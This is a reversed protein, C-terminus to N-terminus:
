MEMAQLTASLQNLSQFVETKEKIGFIKIVEDPIVNYKEKIGELIEKAELFWEELEFEKAPDQKSVDKRNLVITENETGDRLEKFRSRIQKILKEISNDSLKVIDSNNLDLLYLANQQLDIFEKRLAAFGETAEQVTRGLLSAVYIIKDLAITAKGRHKGEREKVYTRILDVKTTFENDTFKAIFENITKISFRKQSPFQAELGKIFTDFLEKYKEFAITLFAKGTATNNPNAQMKSITQFLTLTQADTLKLGYVKTMTEIDSLLYGGIQAVLEGKLKAKNEGDKEQKLLAKPTRLIKSIDEPNLYKRAYPYGKMYSLFEMFGISEWSNPLQKEGPAFIEDFFNKGFPSIEMTNTSPNVAFMLLALEQALEHHLNEEAELEHLNEHILTGAIKKQFAIPGLKQLNDVLIFSIKEKFSLGLSNKKGKWNRAFVFPINTQKMIDYFLKLYPTSALEQLGVVEYTWGSVIPPMKEFPINIAHTKESYEKGELTIKAEAKVRTPISNAKVQYNGNEDVTLMERIIKDGFVSRIDAEEQANIKRASTKKKSVRKYVTEGKDLTEFLDETNDKIRNYEEILESARFGKGQLVAGNEALKGFDIKNLRELVLPSSAKIVIYKGTSPIQDFDTIKTNYSAGVGAFPVAFSISTKGDSDTFVAKVKADEEATRKNMFRYVFDTTEYRKKTELSERLDQYDKFAPHTRDVWIMIAANTARAGAFKGFNDSTDMPLPTNLREVYVLKKDMDVLKQNEKNNIWVAPVISYVVPSLAFAKKFASEIYSSDFYPQIITVSNQNFGQESLKQYEEMEKISVADNVDIIQEPNFAVIIHGEREARNVIGDYGTARTTANLVDKFSNGWINYYFNEIGQQKFHKQIMEDLKIEHTFGVSKRFHGEVTEQVSNKLLDNLEKKNIVKNELLYKTILYTRWRRVLTSLMIGPVAPEEQNSFGDYVRFGASKEYLLTALASPTPAVIGNEELNIGSEYMVNTVLQPINGNTDTENKLLEKVIDSFEARTFVTNGRIAIRSASRDDEFYIPKKINLYVEKLVGEEKVDATGSYPVTKDLSAYNLSTNIDSAFYFGPGYALGVKQLFAYSFDKFLTKTGHYLRLIRGEKDRLLSHANKLKETVESSIYRGTSDQSIFDMKEVSLRTVPYTIEKLKQQVELKKQQNSLFGTYASITNKIGSGIDEFNLTTNLTYIRFPEQVLKEISDINFYSADPKGIQVTSLFNNSTALSTFNPTQKLESYNSESIANATMNSFYLVSNGNQAIEPVAYSFERIDIGVFDYKKLLRQFLPTFNKYSINGKQIDDQYSLLEEKVEQLVQSVVAGEGRYFVDADNNLVADNILRAKSFEYFMTLFDNEEYNLYGMLYVYYIKTKNKYKELFDSAYEFFRKAKNLIYKAEYRPHGLLRIQTQTEYFFERVKFISRAIKHPIRTFDTFDKQFEQVAKRNTLYTTYLYSFYKLRLITDYLNDGMLWFSSEEEINLVGEFTKLMKEFEELAKYTQIDQNFNKQNYEVTKDRNPISARKNRKDIDTIPPDIFILEKPEKKLREIVSKINDIIEQRINNKNKKIRQYIGDILDYQSSENTYDKQFFLIFFEKSFGFTNKIDSEIKNAIKEFINENIEVVKNPIRILKENYKSKEFSHTELTRAAKVYTPLFPFEIEFDRNDVDAINLVDSIILEFFNKLSFLMNEKKESANKRDIFNGIREISVIHYPKEKLIDTIPTDYPNLLGSSKFFSNFLHYSMEAAFVSDPIYENIIESEQEPSQILKQSRMPKILAYAADDFTAINANTDLNLTNGLIKLQNLPKVVNEYFKKVEIPNNLELKFVPNHQKAKNNRLELPAYFYSVDRNNMDTNNGLYQHILRLDPLYLYKNDSFTKKSIVMGFLFKKSSSFAGSDIKMQADLKEIDGDEVHTFYYGAGLHNTDKFYSDYFSGIPLLTNLLFFRIEYDKGFDGQLGKEKTQKKIEEEIKTKAEAITTSVKISSGWPLNIQEVIEPLNEQDANQVVTPIINSLQKIVKDNINIQANNLVASSTIQNNGNLVDDTFVINNFKQKEEEIADIKVEKIQTTQKESEQIKQIYAQINSVTPYIFVSFGVYESVLRKGSLSDKELFEVEYNYNDLGFKTKKNDLSIHTGELFSHILIDYSKKVVDLYDQKEKKTKLKNLETSVDIEAYIGGPNNIDFTSFSSNIFNAGQLFPPVKLQNNSIWNALRQTANYAAHSLTIQPVSLTQRAAIKASKILKSKVTERQSPVSALNKKIINKAYNNINFEAIILIKRKTEKDLILEKNNKFYDTLTASTQIITSTNTPVSENKSSLKNNKIEQLVSVNNYSADGFIAGMDQLNKTVMVGTTYISDYDLTNIVPRVPSLEEKFLSIIGLRTKLLKLKKRMEEAEKGTANGLNASLAEIEEDLIGSYIDLIFYFYVSKKATVQQIKNITDIDYGSIGTKMYVSLANILNNFSMFNLNEDPNWNESFIQLPTKQQGTKKSAFDMNGAFVDEINYQTGQIQMVKTYPDIEIARALSEFVLDIDDNYKKMITPNIFQKLSDKSAFFNRYFYGLSDREKILKRTAETVKEEIREIVEAAKGVPKVEGTELKAASPLNAGFIREMQKQFRKERLTQTMRAVFNKLRERINPNQKEIVRVFEASDKVMAEVFYSTTEEAMRVAISETIIRVRNAARKKTDADVEPNRSLRMLAFVKEAGGFSDLIDALATDLNDFFRRQQEPTFLGKIFDADYNIAITGNAPNVQILQNFDILSRM